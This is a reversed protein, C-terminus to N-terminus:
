GPEARRVAPQRGLGGRDEWAGSRRRPTGPCVLTM